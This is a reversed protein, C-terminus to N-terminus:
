NILLHTSGPSLILYQYWRQPRICVQFIAFVLYIKQSVKPICGNKNQNSVAVSYLFHLTGSIRLLIFVIPILLLRQKVENGMERLSARQLSNIQAVGEGEAHNGQM